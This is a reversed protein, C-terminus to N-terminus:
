EDSVSDSMLARCGGRELRRRFLFLGPEHLLTGPAKAGVRRTASQQEVRLQPPSLVQPACAGVLHGVQYVELGGLCEAESHWGRNPLQEGFTSHRLQTM